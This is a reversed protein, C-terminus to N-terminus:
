SSAITFQDEDIPRSSILLCFRSQDEMGPSSVFSNSVKASVSGIVMNAWELIVSGARSEASSSLARSSEKKSDEETELRKLKISNM